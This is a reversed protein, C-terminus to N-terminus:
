VLAEDFLVATDKCEALTLELRVNTAYMQAIGTKPV